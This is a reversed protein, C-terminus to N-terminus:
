IVQGEDENVSVVEIESFLGDQRVAIRKLRVLELIGLLTVIVEQPNNNNNLLQRFFVRSSHNDLINIIEEIKDEVKINEEQIYEVEPSEKKENQQKHTYAKLIAKKLVSPDNELALEPTNNDGSSFERERFYIRAAKEQFEQLLRSLEKFRHYEKLRQVLDTAENEDEEEDSGPLLTSAKIELLEAAIVTFESALNLDFSQLKNLYDLYQGTIKALSIRSIEIENKKVLQYLLELPGEFNDLKLEYTM